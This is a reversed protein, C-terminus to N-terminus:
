TAPRVRPNTTLVGVIVAIAVLSPVIMWFMALAPLVGVVIMGDALAVRHAPDSSRVARVTGVGGVALAAVALLGFVLFFVGPSGASVGVVLLALCVVLLGFGGAIWWRSVPLRPLDAVPTAARACGARWRLWLGGVVLAAFAVLIVPGVARGPMKGDAETAVAIAFLADFGAVLLALPAFWNQTVVGWTTRLRSPPRYSGQVLRREERRWALDAHLGRVARWAVDHGRHETGHVQEFVDSAIEARRRERVDPPLGRTYRDVWWRAFAAGRAM